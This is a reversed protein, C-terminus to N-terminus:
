EANPKIYHSYYLSLLNINNENNDCDRLHRTLTSTGVELLYRFQTYNEGKMKNLFNVLKDSFKLM